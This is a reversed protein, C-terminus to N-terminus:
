LTKLYKDVAKALLIETLLKLNKACEIAEPPMHPNSQVEACLATKEQLHRAAETLWGSPTAIM